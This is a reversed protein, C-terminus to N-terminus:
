LLPTRSFCSTSIIPAFGSAMWLPSSRNAKLSSMSWTGRNDCRGILTYRSGTERRLCEADRALTERAASTLTNDDFLLESRSKSGTRLGIQDKIVETLVAPHAGKAPDIVDVINIIKTVRAETLPAANLGSALLLSFCLILTSRM